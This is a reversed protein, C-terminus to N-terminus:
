DRNEQYKGLHLEKLIRLEEMVADHTETSRQEAAEGQVQQGVMIVPLLVLQLFSQSLWTVGTLMDGSLLADLAQPLSIIALGMFLYACWMTGVRSTVFLAIRANASTRAAPGTM